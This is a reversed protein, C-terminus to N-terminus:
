IVRSLIVVSILLLTFLSVSLRAKEWQTLKYTEFIDDLVLFGKPFLLRMVLLTVAIYSIYQIFTFVIIQFIGADYVAATPDLLRIAWPSVAWLGIVLPLAILAFYILKKM